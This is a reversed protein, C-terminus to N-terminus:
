QGSAYYGAKAQVRLFPAKKSVALKVNIKHWKGDHPASAPQYGLVYQYRLQLGVKRTVAPLDNPNGLTFEQGGTVSAFDQLLQPGLQEETSHFYRDYIGVAYVMVDAEKIASKVEREDYRSHNDGGDSIILLAKRGYRAQRMKEIGMYIADLLATQGQSHTVVLENEVKSPSATFDVALHPRDAFTILFFEDQPNATECFETVAERAREIKDRMSGSTDMIIGLSIPADESSFHKIDQPKKNEFLRFNDRDLGIVPRDMADTITVPVLVLDVSTRIVAARTRPVLADAYDARAVDVTPARSSIHVDDLSTQANAFSCALTLFCILVCPRIPMRFFVSSLSAQM